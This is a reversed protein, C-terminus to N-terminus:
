WGMWFLWCDAFRKWRHCPSLAKKNYRENTCHERCETTQRNRKVANQSCRISGNGCNGPLDGEDMFNCWGTLFNCVPVTKGANGSINGPIEPILRHKSTNAFWVACRWVSEKYVNWSIAGVHNIKQVFHAMSYGSSVNGVGNGFFWDFALARSIVILSMARMLPQETLVM